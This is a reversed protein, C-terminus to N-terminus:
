SRTAPATGGMGGVGLVDLVRYPGVTDGPKMPHKGRVASQRRIPVLVAVWYVPVATDNRWAHMTNRQIVVDGPTLKMEGEEVMLVLEGGLVINYDLTETRHWGPKAGPETPKLTVFTLTSGGPPPELNPRDTTRVCPSEGAPSPGLPLDGTARYMNPHAGGSMREDSVICSRGQANHGTVVRRVGNPLAIGAGTAGGARGAASLTADFRDLGALVLGAAGGGLLLGLANRREPDAAAELIPRGNDSNAM